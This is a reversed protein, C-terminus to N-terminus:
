YSQFFSLNLFYCEKFAVFINHLRIEMGCYMCTRFKLGGKSDFNVKLFDPEVPSAIAVVVALVLAVFFIADFSARAALEVAVIAPTDGPRISAVVVIVAAIATIFFPLCILIM